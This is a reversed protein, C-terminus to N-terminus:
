KGKTQLLAVSGGARSIAAKRERTMRESYCGRLYVCCHPKGALFVVPERLLWRPLDDAIHFYDLYWEFPMGADDWTGYKIVGFDSYDRDDVLIM